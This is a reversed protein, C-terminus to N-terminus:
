KMGRKGENGKRKENKKINRLFIVQCTLGVLIFKQFIAAYWQIGNGNIIIIILKMGVSQHNVNKM